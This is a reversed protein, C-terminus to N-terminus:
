KRGPDEPWVADNIANGFERDTIETRGLTLGKLDGKAGCRCCKWYPWEETETGKWGFIDVLSSKCKLCFVVSCLNIDKM